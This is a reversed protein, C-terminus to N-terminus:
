SGVLPFFITLGTLFEIGSRRSRTMLTPFRSAGHSSRFSIGSFALLLTSLPKVPPRLQGRLTSTARTRALWSGRSRRMIICSIWLGSYALNDVFSLQSISTPTTYLYRVSPYQSYLHDLGQWLFETAIIFLCPSFPDGQRLGRQSQFYGPSFIDTVSGM